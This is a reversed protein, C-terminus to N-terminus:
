GVHDLGATLALEKGFNRSLRLLALRPDAAALQQLVDWTADTSGDDVYLMRGEIGYADAVADLAATIRSQLLPLSDAENFAAIVVTLRDRPAIASMGAHYGVAQM